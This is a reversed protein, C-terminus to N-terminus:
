CITEVSAEKQHQDPKVASPLSFIHSFPEVVIEPTLYHSNLAVYNLITRWFRESCILVSQYAPNGVSYQRDPVMLHSGLPTQTDGSNIGWPSSSRSCM